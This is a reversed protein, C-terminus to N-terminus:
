ALSISNSPPATNVLVNTYILIDVNPEILGPM